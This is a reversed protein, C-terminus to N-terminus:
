EMTVYHPHRLIVAPEPLTEGRLVGLMMGVLAADVMLIAHGYSLLPLSLHEGILGFSAPVYIVAQLCMTLVATMGLLAGMRNEFRSFRRVCWTLLVALALTLLACPMWGVYAVIGPLMYDAMGYGMDVFRRWADSVAAVNASHGFPRAGRLIAGIMQRMDGDGPQPNFRAASFIVALGILSILLVYAWRRSIKFFGDRVALILILLGLAVMLMCPAIDIGTYRYEWCLLMAVAGPFLCVAFAGWGRGRLRCALLATVMPLSVALVQPVLVRFIAPDYTILRQLPILRHAMCILWAAMIPLSWRIWLTYDTLALLCLPVLAFATFLARAGVLTDMISCGALMGNVVQIGLGLTLLLMAIAIGRWQTAPRHAADLEGGVLLANGMDETTRREAEEESLGAALYEEKQSLMHDRLEATLPERIRVVRVQRAVQDLYDDPWFM